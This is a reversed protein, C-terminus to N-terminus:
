VYGILVCRGGIHEKIEVNKFDADEMMAKLADVSFCWWDSGDGQQPWYEVVPKKRGFLSPFLNYILTKNKSLCLSEVIIQKKTLRRCVQLAQIPDRLHYLLGCCLVLDFSSDLVKELEYVTSEVIEVKSDYLQKILRAGKSWSGDELFNSWPSSLNKKYTEWSGKGSLAYDMQTINKLNALVLRNAGRKECEFSLAGDWGAIDLVSMGALSKPLHYFSFEQSYRQEPIGGKEEIIGTVKEGNGLDFSHYWLYHNKIKKILDLKDKTLEM